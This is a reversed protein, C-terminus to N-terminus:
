DPEDRLRRNIEELRLQNQARRTQRALLDLAQQLEISMLGSAGDRMGLRIVDIAAAILDSAMIMAWRGRLAWLASPSGTRRGPWRLWSCRCCSRLSRRLCSGSAKM